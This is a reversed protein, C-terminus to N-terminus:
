ARLFSDREIEQWTTHEPLRLYEALLPHVERVLEAMRLAIRRVSFHANPASRLECFHFLERLNMTMLVRRRFGNPVMYAAVDANWYVMEDFAAKAADMAACYATTVGATDMLRPITYGLDATLPQPSQTMMRHRKVEFFAGQDLCVDFTYNAHELVRVPVDHRDMGALLDAALQKKEADSRSVVFDRASTFSAQSQEYLAAALVYEQAEPEYSVLEVMSADLEDPLNRAQAQYSYQVNRRYVVPDTYKLLTPVEARAVQRIEQAVLRVETLPHTLMKRILQELTRANATMGVNALCAAPLLYRCSDVYRSRIRRDWLEDTENEKRPTHQKVVDSSPKLLQLYTELLQRCTQLFRPKLPHQELEDPVFFGSLDWKQYRTSKETFSALRAAEITEIALRSVNELAIHLVAHEAVSAHGYGIVWKEHFQASADDTLGAAIQDFSDPSRSTKAFAVAIIEPSIQKPDLMYIRRPSIESM